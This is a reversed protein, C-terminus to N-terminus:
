FPQTGAPPPGVPAEPPVFAHAVFGWSAVPTHDAGTTTPQCATGPPVADSLAADLRPSGASNIVRTATVHSDAGCLFAIAVTGAERQALAAAPYAPRRFAGPALKADLALNWMVQQSKSDTPEPITVGPNAARAAAVLDRIDESTLHLSAPPPPTRLKFNYRFKAPGTVVEGTQADHGPFCRLGPVVSLVANDLRAYGSPEVVQPDTVSGDAQCQVSVGVRGEEGAHASEPPYDPQKFSALDLRPKAPDPQATQDAAGAAAPMLVLCLVALLHGCRRHQITM